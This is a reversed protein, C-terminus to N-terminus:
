ILWKLLIKTGIYVGLVTGLAYLWGALSLSAISCLFGGINCGMAIRAGYGMLWGGILAILAQKSSKIKKFKFERALTAGLFAGVIIGFNTWTEPDKLFSSLNEMEWYQWKSIKWGFIDALWTGWRAFTKSIGWAKKNYWLLFISSLGLLSGGVIPHWPKRLNDLLRSQLRKM